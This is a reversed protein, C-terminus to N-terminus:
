RTFLDLDFVSRCEHNSLLWADYLSDNKKWGVKRRSTFLDHNNKRDLEVHGRFRGKLCLNVAHHYQTSNIEYAMSVIRYPIEDASSRDEIDVM